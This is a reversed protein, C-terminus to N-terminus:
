HANHVIFLVYFFQAFTTDILVILTLRLPGNKKKEKCCDLRRRRSDADLFRALSRPGRIDSVLTFIYLLRIYIYIYIYEIYLLIKYAYKMKYRYNRM